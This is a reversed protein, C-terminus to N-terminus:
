ARGSIPESGMMSRIAAGSTGLIRTFHALRACPKRAAVSAGPRALNRRSQSGFGTMYCYNGDAMEDGAFLHEGRRGSVNEGVHKRTLANRGRAVRQSM